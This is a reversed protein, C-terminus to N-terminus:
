LSASTYCSCNPNHIAKRRIINLKSCFVCFQGYRWRDGDEEEEDDDCDGTM